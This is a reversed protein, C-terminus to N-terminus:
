KSELESIKLELMEIRELLNKVVCSTLEFYSEKEIGPINELTGYVFFYHDDAQVDLDNEFSITYEDVFTFEKIKLEKVINDQHYLIQLETTNEIEALNIPNTVTITKNEYIGIQYINPAFGVSQFSFTSNPM